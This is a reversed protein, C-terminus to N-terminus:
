KEKPELVQLETAEFEDAKFNKSGIIIVTIISVILLINIM